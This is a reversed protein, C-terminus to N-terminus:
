SHRQWGALKRRELREETSVLAVDEAIEPAHGAIFLRRVVEALLRKHAGPLMEVTDGGILTWAARGTRRASGDM